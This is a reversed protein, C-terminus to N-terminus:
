LVQVEGGMGGKMWFLKSRINGAQQLNRIYRIIEHHLILSKM